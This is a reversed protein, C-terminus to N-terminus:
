RRWSSYPDAYARMIGEYFERRANRINEMERQKAYERQRWRSYVEDSMPMMVYGPVPDQRMGEYIIRGDDLIHRISSPIPRATRHSLQLGVPGALLPERSPGAPGALLPERSPGAPLAAPQTTAPQATAPRPVNRAIQGAAWTPLDDTIRRFTRQLSGFPSLAAAKEAATKLMREVLRRRLLSAIKVFPRSAVPM